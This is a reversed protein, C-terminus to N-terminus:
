RVWTFVRSWRITSPNCLVRPGNIGSECSLWIMSAKGLLNEMPLFGWYRSDRSNNRNDGMVFLHNDPVKFKEDWAFREKKTRIFHDAKDPLSEIYFLSESITGQLAVETLEFGLSDEVDTIDVPEQPITEGNIKLEGAKSLEITDGPLGIVRKVMFFGDDEVSKFVVVDGRRPTKPGYLWKESFPYRLGYAYKTVTLHDFVLLSPIMSGSPIVYPEVVAWRLAFFVFAGLLFLSFSKLLSAKKNM